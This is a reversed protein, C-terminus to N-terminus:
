RCWPLPRLSQTPDPEPGVRAVGVQVVQGTRAGSSPGYKPGHAVGGGFAVDEAALELRATGVGQGTEEPIEASLQLQPHGGDDGEELPDEEIDRGPQLAPPLSVEGELLGAAKLEAVGPLDKITELGFHELFKDSVGYTVPRGPTRRRGRLRVWGIEMLLDLTGKSLSVGRVEEIEARTVPQHYAVIALTEIAARSLKRIEVTEKQMLFGLDGATRFAWGDGVKTLQVGRGEYRKRLYVLAEAPDSGHPMRGALEKLTVPEASAFLIAEAMREQEAMPPAEFLSEPTDDEPAGSM